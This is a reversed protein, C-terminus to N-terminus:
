IEFTSTLLSEASSFHCFSVTEYDKLQIIGGNIRGIKQNRSEFDNVASQSFRAQISCFRDSLITQYNTSARTQQIDLVQVLRFKNLRIAVAEFKGLEQSKDVHKDLALNKTLATEVKGLEELLVPRIWPKRLSQAM